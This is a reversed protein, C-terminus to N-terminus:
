GGFVARLVMVVDGDELEAHERDVVESRQGRMLMIMVSPKVKGSSDLIEKRREDTDCVQALLDKIKARDGLEIDQEEFFMKKFDAYFKVKIKM